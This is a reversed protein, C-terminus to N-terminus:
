GRGQGARRRERLATGAAPATRCAPWCSTPRRVFPEIGPVCPWHALHVGIPVRIPRGAGAAPTLHELAFLAAAETLVNVNYPPRVKEIQEIWDPAGAMYGLRVGALGLKSVTRLV